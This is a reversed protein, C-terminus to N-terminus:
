PCMRTSDRPCRFARFTCFTSRGPRFTTSTSRASSRKGRSQTAPILQPQHPARHLVALLRRAGPTQSRADVVLGASAGITAVSAILFDRRDLREEALRNHRAISSGSRQCVADSRLDWGAEFLDRDLIPPHEAPCLESKFVVEGIYFRNRLLHALSGRTFSIGGVPRRPGRFPVGSRTRVMKWRPAGMRSIASRPSSAAGGFIPSSCGSVASNSTAAVPRRPPRARPRPSRRRPLIAHWARAASTCLDSSPTVALTSRGSRVWLCFSCAATAPTVGGPRARSLM